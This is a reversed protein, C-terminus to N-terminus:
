PAVHHHEADPHAFRADAAVPTIICGVRRPAFCSDDRDRSERFGVRSRVKGAGASLGERGAKRGVGGGVGVGGIGVGVVGVVTRAQSAMGTAARDPRDPGDKQTRFKGLSAADM